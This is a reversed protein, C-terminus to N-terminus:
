VSFFVKSAERFRRETASIDLAHLVAAVYIGCAVWKDSKDTGEATTIFNNRSPTAYRRSEM